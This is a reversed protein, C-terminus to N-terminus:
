SNDAASSESRLLKQWEIYADTEQLKSILGAMFADSRSGARWFYEPNNHHCTPPLHRGDAPKLDSFTVALDKYADFPRRVAYGLLTLVFGFKM